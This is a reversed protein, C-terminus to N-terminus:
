GWFSVAATQIGAGGLGERGTNLNAVTTWSTGNWSETATGTQIKNSYRWISFRSNSNRSRCVERATNLSNVTTWSTGNYHNQQLQLRSSPISQIWRRRIRSNSNWLRCFFIRKYYEYKWKSVL